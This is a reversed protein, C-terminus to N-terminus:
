RSCTTGTAEDTTVVNGFAGYGANNVLVDLGGFREAALAVM